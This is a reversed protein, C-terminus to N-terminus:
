NSTIVYLTSSDVTGGSVLADYAAQTIQQLKLGGMNDNLANLAAATVEEDEALRDEIESLDIGAIADYVAKASPVQADTSGSTISTTIASTEVLGSVSLTNVGIAGYVLNDGLNLYASSYTTGWKVDQLKFEISKIPKSTNDLSLGKTESKTCSIVNDTISIGTGASYTAGSPIADFVAKATPIQSDTSASTVSSTIASVDVKNALEDELANLAAATVEEDEALRDEINNFETTIASNAVANTSGSDLSPDITISGGGEIIINGSGLISENNITKINTGSVLTDQKGSVSTDIMTQVEGSSMGGGQITINGSGLISENNITKINTGSVLADQKGSWTSKDSSTVHITTDATHATLVNNVATVASTDAKGSVADTIASQTQASTWYNDINIPTADTIIYYTNQSVTGASVLADYEAQTLEVTPNGGGGGTCSIVNGSIQIGTGASLLPQASLDQLEYTTGSLKLKNLKSM